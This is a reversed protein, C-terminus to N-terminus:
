TSKGKARGFIALSPGKLIGNKTKFFYVRRGAGQVYIPRSAAGRVEELSRWDILFIFREPLFCLQDPFLSGAWKQKNMIHDGFILARKRSSCAPLDPASYGFAQVVAVCTTPLSFVPWAGPARNPALRVASPM